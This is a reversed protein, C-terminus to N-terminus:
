AACHWMVIMVIARNPAERLRNTKTRPNNYTRPTTPGVVYNFSPTVRFWENRTNESRRPMIFREDCRAMKTDNIAMAGRLRSAVHVPPARGGADRADIRAIQSRSELDSASLCRHSVEADRVAARRTVHFRHIQRQLLSGLICM